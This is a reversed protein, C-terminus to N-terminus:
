SFESADPHATARRVTAEEAASLQYLRFAARHCAGPDTANSAAQLAARTAPQVDRWRPLRIRRLYQAQFRLYGGRMQTSYTSVFLQTVASRLVAQLAKLDWEESTVFYLNHHPYLQGEEFVVHAKGKIDPILLKQRRALQSDIRDITRFWARPNKKACHRQRIVEAHRRLYAALRPYDRLNVLSGDEAFPNIVGLGKWEVRGTKIDKTKALPLKRDPEVDLKDFPQIYVRDAGTAVGIGVKCGASELRPLEAELRRVVALQEAPPLIWPERGRAVNAVEVVPGHAELSGAHMSRALQSLSSRDIQPRRAIRTPGSPERQFVTIAPYAAVAEHFARTGVMDVYHTLHYDNAILERLPGGYRNKMWRDACIFACKGNPTLSTLCREMFPIYLDARDYITRYRQRYVALLGDPILEQRVYPPNGVAHTFSHPLDVLLFDGDIVWAKVLRASDEASVSHAQLLDVLRMRLAELSSRDVEVARIAPELAATTVGHQAARQWAKLLREVAPLLFDGSGCAPELLRLEHLSRQATYGALDLIFEVVERRTFVAGRAERSVNAFHNALQPSLPTAATISRAM